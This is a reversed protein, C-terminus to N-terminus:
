QYIGNAEVCGAAKNLLIHFMSDYWLIGHYCYLQPFMERKKSLELLASERPIPDMLQAIWKLIRREEVSVSEQPSGAIRSGNSYAKYQHQWSVTARALTARNVLISNTIVCM